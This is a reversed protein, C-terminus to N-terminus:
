QGLQGTVEIDREQQIGPHRLHVEQGAQAVLQTDRIGLAVRALLGQDIAEVPVQELGMGPPTGRHEEDVLGLIEGRRDQLLHSEEGVELGGLLLEQLDDEDTLRLQALDEVPALEALEGLADRGAVV